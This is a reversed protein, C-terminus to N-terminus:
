LRKNMERYNAMLAKQGYTVSQGDEPTTSDVNSVVTNLDTITNSRITTIREIRVLYRLNREPLEKGWRSVVAPPTEAMFFIESIGLKKFHGRYTFLFDELDQAVISAGRNTEDYVKFVLEVDYWMRFLEIISKPNNPDRFQDFKVPVLSEHSDSRVRNGTDYTVIPLYNIQEPDNGTPEDHIFTVGPLGGADILEKIKDTFQDLTLNGSSEFVRQRTAGVM